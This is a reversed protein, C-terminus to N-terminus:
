REWISTMGDEGGCTELSAKHIKIDANMTYPASSQITTGELEIDSSRGDPIVLPSKSARARPRAKVVCSVGGTTCPVSGVHFADGLITILRNVSM